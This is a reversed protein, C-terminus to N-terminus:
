ILILQDEKGFKIFKSITDETGGTCDYSRVAILIDSALAIDTNRIFGADLGLVNWQAPFWLKKTKYKKYLTVAFKDGGKTCLGSVIVVDTKGNEVELASAKVFTDHTLLYDDARNRRRTGVIGIFLQNPKKYEIKRAKIERWFQWFQKPHGRKIEFITKNLDNSDFEMWGHFVDLLDKDTLYEM